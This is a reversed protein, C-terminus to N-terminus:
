IIYMYMYPNRGRCLRYRRCSFMFMKSNRNIRLHISLLTAIFYRTMNRLFIIINFFWFKLSKRKKHNTWSCICYVDILKSRIPPPLPPPDILRSLFTIASNFSARASNNNEWCKGSLSGHVQLYLVNSKCFLMQNENFQM